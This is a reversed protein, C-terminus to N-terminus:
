GTVPPLRCVPPVGAGAGPRDLLLDDQRGRGLAHRGGAAPAAPRGFGGLDARGPREDPGTHAELLDRIMGAVLAEDRAALPTLWDDSGHYGYGALSGDDGVYVRATKSRQVWM